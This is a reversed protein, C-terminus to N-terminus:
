LKCIIKAGKKNKNLENEISKICPVVQCIKEGTKRQKIELNM